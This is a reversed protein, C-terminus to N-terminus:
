REEIFRGWKWPQWGGHGEILSPPTSPSPSRSPSRTQSSSLWWMSLWLIKSLTIILIIVQSQQRATIISTPFNSFLYLWPRTNKTLTSKDTWQTTPHLSVSTHLSLVWWQTLIVQFHLLAPWIKQELMTVLAATDAKDVRSLAHDINCRRSRM